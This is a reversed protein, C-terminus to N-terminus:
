HKQGKRRAQILTLHSSYKETSKQGNCRTPKVEQKGFTHILEIAQFLVNIRKKAILVFLRNMIDVM